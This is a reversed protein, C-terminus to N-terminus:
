NVEVGFDSKSFAAVTKGTDNIISSKLGFTDAREWAKDFLASFEEANVSSIYDLLRGNENYLGM